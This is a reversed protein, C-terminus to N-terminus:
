LDKTKCFLIFNYLVFNFCFKNSVFIHRTGYKEVLNELILFLEVMVPVTVDWRLLFLGSIM